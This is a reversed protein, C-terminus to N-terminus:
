SGTGAAALAERLGDVLPTTPRGILRSLTGDTDGLVGRAIGDDTAMRFDVFAESVGAEVLATRQQDPTLAVYRVERGVVESAASALDAFTWAVDGALEYVAGLHGDDLLVVAAADAYDRRSASAVRADGVAAAIVGTRAARQVDSLYNETYWDNRLVVAPLGSAAIAQETARHDLGLPWDFTTAKPASTYVFKTVGAALAADIVNLHGAVRAGPVNGSILLVSDVGALAAAVSDPESYDLHVTRVGRQALDAIAAPNRAGAVVASPDAGRSLLADVVLRGLQGSAATVLTSM